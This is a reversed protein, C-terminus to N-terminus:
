GFSASPLSRSNLGQREQDTEAKPTLKGVLPCVACPDPWPSTADTLQRRFEQYREGWWIDDFSEDFVNGLKYGGSALSACCPHVDGNALIYASTWPYRCPARRRPFSADQPASRTAPTEVSNAEETTQQLHVVPASPAAVTARASQPDTPWLLGAPAAATEEIERTTFHVALGLSRGLNELPVLSRWEANTLMLPLMSPATAYVPSLLVMEVDLRKALHLIDSIEALNPKMVVVHFRVQPFRAGRERKLDRLTELNQIFRAFDSRPRIKEFTEATAADISVTLAALGTEILRLSRERTLLMGNTHFDVACGKDAVYEVMDLLDPNLMPEGIGQPVVRYLNPIQDVIKRFADFRLHKAPPMPMAGYCMICRLNCTNTVEIQLDFPRHTPRTPQVFLSHAYRPVQTFLQPPLRRFSILSYAYRRYWDYTQM